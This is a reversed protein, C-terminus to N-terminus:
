GQLPISVMLQCGQGPASQIETKGVYFKPRDKISALGVGSNTKKTDFGIGNDKIIFETTDYKSQLLIEVHNAQSYKLINKLQEQM